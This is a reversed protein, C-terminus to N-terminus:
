SEGQWIIRRQLVLRRFVDLLSPGQGNRRPVVELGLVEPGVRDWRESGVGSLGLDVLNPATLNTRGWSLEGLIHRGDSAGSSRNGAWCCGPDAPDGFMGSSWALLGGSVGPESGWSLVSADFHAQSSRANRSVYRSLYNLYLDRHSPAVWVGRELDHLSLSM